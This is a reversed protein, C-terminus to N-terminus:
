NELRRLTLVTKPPTSAKVHQVLMVEYRNGDANLIVIDNNFISRNLSVRIVDTVISEYQLAAEQRKLTLTQWGFRLSAKLVLGQKPTKGPLAINETSYIAAIGDNFTETRQKQKM